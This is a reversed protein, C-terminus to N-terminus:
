PLRRAISARPVGTPCTDTGSGAWRVWSEKPGRVRQQLRQLRVALFRLLGRAEFPVMTPM